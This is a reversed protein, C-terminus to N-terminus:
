LGCLAKIDLMGYGQKNWPQKLDRATHQLRVKVEDNSYYPYKSLLLAAAGSVIPTSMSTGSKKTYYGQFGGPHGRYYVNAKLSTISSGPAVLDPKKLSGEVPGRGSYNRYIRGNIKVPIEDDSSGVTIVRTSVGPVTISMPAPGGNGAAIVVILGSSWAYDVADLLLKEERPQDKKHSAGVSINLIRIGYRDRCEVVWEIGRILAETNGNGKEDLVKGAIFHCAPAIGRYKGGSAAGSAGAIGAIHTGHGNDDYMEISDGMFDRFMYIRERLDPHNCIGSDLVAIGTGRGTLNQAHAYTCGTLERVENMTGDMLQKVICYEPHSSFTSLFGRVVAANVRGTM